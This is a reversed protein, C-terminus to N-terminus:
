GVDPDCEPPRGGEGVVLAVFDHADQNDDCDVEDHDKPGVVEHASVPKHGQQQCILRTFQLTGNEEDIAQAVAQGAEVGEQVGEEVDEQASISPQLQLPGQRAQPPALVGPSLLGESGSSLWVFQPPLSVPCM